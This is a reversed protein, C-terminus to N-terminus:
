KAQEKWGEPLEAETLIDIHFDDHNLNISAGGAVREAQREGLPGMVLSPKHGDDEVICVYVSESM